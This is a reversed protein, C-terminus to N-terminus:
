VSELGYDLCMNQTSLLVMENLHNKQTGMVHNLFSFVNMKLDGRKQLGSLYSSIFIQM